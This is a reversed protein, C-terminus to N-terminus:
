PGPVLPGRRKMRLRRYLNGLSRKLRLPRGRRDKLATRLRKHTVLHDVLEWFRRESQHLLTTGLYLVSVTLGERRSVAPRGVGRFVLDRLLISTHVAWFPLVLYWPRHQRNPFMGAFQREATIAGGSRRYYYFRPLQAFQGYLALESLFLRDPLYTFHLMRPSLAERRFLGYMMSGASMNVVTRILRVLPRDIGRTDFRWSSFAVLESGDSIQVRQPYVLVVDPSADLVAVAEELWKPHLIDHDSAWAFYPIEPYRKGALELGYRWNEIMGKRRSNRVYAVRSDIAEYWGAVEPTADTSGDDILLLRFHNFTQALISEISQALFDAKNFLLMSIVVRPNTDTMM